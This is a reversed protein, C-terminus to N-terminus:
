RESDKLLYGAQVQHAYYLLTLQTDTSNIVLHDILYRAVAKLPDAALQGTYASGDFMIFLDLKM